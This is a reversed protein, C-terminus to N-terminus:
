AVYCNMIRVCFMSGSLLREAFRTGCVRKYNMSNALFTAAGQLPPSLSGAFSWVGTSRCTSLQLPPVVGAGSLDKAEQKSAM